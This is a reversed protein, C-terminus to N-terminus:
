KCFFFQSQMNLTFTKDWIEEPMEEIPYSVGAAGANNILIEVTGFEKITKEVAKKVQDEKTIDCEIALGKGDKGLVESLTKEAETKDIDVIAVACGEQVFKLAMGKGMGKASGTIIAFKNSLMM